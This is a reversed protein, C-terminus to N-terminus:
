GERRNFSEYCEECRGASWLIPCFMFGDEYKEVIAELCDTLIHNGHDIGDATNCTMRVM